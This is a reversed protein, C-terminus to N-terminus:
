SQNKTISVFLKRLESFIEYIHLTLILVIVSLALFLTKIAIFVSEENM